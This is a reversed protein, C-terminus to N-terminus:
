ITFKKIDKFKSIKRFIVISIYRLLSYKCFTFLILFKKFNEVQRKKAKQTLLKNRSFIIITLYQPYKAAQTNQKM